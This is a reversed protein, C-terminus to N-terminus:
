GTGTICSGRVRRGSWVKLKSSGSCSAHAASVVDTCLLQLLVGRKRRARQQCEMVGLSVFARARMRVCRYNRAVM